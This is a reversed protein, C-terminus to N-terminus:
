PKVSRHTVSIGGASVCCIGLRLSAINKPMPETQADDLFDVVPKSRLADDMVPKLRADNGQIVEISIVFHKLRQRRPVRSRQAGGLIAAWLVGCAALGVRISCIGEM